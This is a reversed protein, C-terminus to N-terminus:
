FINKRTSTNINLCKKLIEPYFYLISKIFHLCHEKDIFSLSFM